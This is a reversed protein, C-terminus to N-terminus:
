RSNVHKHPSPFYFHINMLIFLDLVCGQLQDKHHMEFSNSNHFHYGIQPKRGDGLMSRCGIPMTCWSFRWIWLLKSEVHLSIYVMLLLSINLVQLVLLIVGYAIAQVVNFHEMVTVGKLYPNCGGKPSSM